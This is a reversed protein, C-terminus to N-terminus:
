RIPWASAFRSGGRGPWFRLRVGVDTSRHLRSEPISVEDYGLEDAQVGQALTVAAPEENSLSLGVGAFRAPSSETMVRLKGQLRRPYRRM